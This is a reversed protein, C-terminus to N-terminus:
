TIEGFDGPKVKSLWRKLEKKYATGPFDNDIFIPADVILASAVADGARSNVRVEREGDTLFVEANKIHCQCNKIIVKSISLDFSKLINGLFDFTDPLSAFAPDMSMNISEAQLQDIQISVITEGDTEKLLLFFSKEDDELIMGAVSMEKLM